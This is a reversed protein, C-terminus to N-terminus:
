FELRFLNSFVNSFLTILKQSKEIDLALTMILSILSGILLEKWDVKHLRETADALYDLRKTIVSVQSDTFGLEPLLLKTEELGEVIQNKEESSFPLNKDFDLTHFQEFQQRTLVELLDPQQKEYLYEDVHEKKWTEMVELCTQFTAWDNQPFNLVTSEPSFHTYETDFHHFSHTSNRVRFFLNSDKIQITVASTIFDDQVNESFSIEYYGKPFDLNNFEEVM